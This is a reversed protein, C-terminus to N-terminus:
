AASESCTLLAGTTAASALLGRACAEISYRPIFQRCRAGMRLRLEDDSLLRLLAQKLKETDNREVTFGTEGEIVLDACCGAVRSVVAPVGCAFAENVVLGWADSFTPLALVDALAYFHPVREYPQAGAFHVHRLRTSRCHEELRKRDRGDGVLLLGVESMEQQIGRLADLLVFVGKDRVLRGSYLVLKPPYGRAERERVPDTKAAQNAFFENDAANPAVFTREVPAGMQRVYARSATGVAAVADARSVILTKLWAKLRGPKRLDSATSPCWLVFRRRHFKCWSFAMWAAPTDYGGCIVSDPRLRSLEARLKLAAQLEAVRGYSKSSKLFQWPFQMKQTDLRWSREPWQNETFYVHLRGGTLLNLQNWVPIRYPAPLNTVLAIEGSAM